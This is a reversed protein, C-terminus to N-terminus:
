YITRWAFTNTDMLCAQVSDKPNSQIVWFMGRTSADCVPQKATVPNLRVGGNIELQGGPATTGIGVNGNTDITMRPASANTFFALPIDTFSGMHTAMLGGSSGTFAQGFNAGGSEDSVRIRGVVDLMTQPSMTGIGVNGSVVTGGNVKLATPKDSSITVGALGDSYIQGHSGLKIKNEGGWRVSAGDPYGNIMPNRLMVDNGTVSIAYATEAFGNADFFLASGLIIGDIKTLTVKTSGANVDNTITASTEPTSSGIAIASEAASVSSLDLGRNLFPQYDAFILTDYGGTAGGLFYAGYDMRYPGLSVLKLMSSPVTGRQIKYSKRVILNLGNIGIIPNPPSVLRDKDKWTYGNPQITFQKKAKEFSVVEAGQVMMFPRLAPNAPTPTTAALGVYDYYITGGPPTQPCMSLPVGPPGDFNDVRGGLQLITPCVVKAIRYFHGTCFGDITVDDGLCHGGQSKPNYTDTTSGIKIYQGEPSPKVKTWDIGAFTVISGEVKTVWASSCTPNPTNVGTACAQDLNLLYRAGLIDENVEGQYSIVTANPKPNGNITARFIRNGQDAEFEGLPSAEPLSDVTTGNADPNIEGGGYFDVIGDMGLANGKGLGKVYSVLGLGQGATALVTNTFIASYVTQTGPPNGYVGGINAMLDFRGAIYVNQTGLAAPVYTSVLPSLGPLGLWPMNLSATDGVSLLSPYNLTLTPGTVIAHKAKISEASITGKGGGILPKALLSGTDIQKANLTNVNLQPCNPPCVAWAQSVFPSGDLFAVLVITNLLAKIM